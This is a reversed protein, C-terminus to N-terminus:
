AKPVATVVELFVSATDARGHVMIQKVGAVQFTHLFSRPFLHPDSTCVGKLAISDVLLIVSEDETFTAESASPRTCNGSGISYARIELPTGATVRVDIPEYDRTLVTTDGALRVDVSVREAPGVFWDPETCAGCAMGIALLVSGFRERSRQRGYDSREGALRRKGKECVGRISM